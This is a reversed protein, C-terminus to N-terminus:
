TIRYFLMSFGVSILVLGSALAFFTNHKPTTLWYMLQKGAAAYILMWGMDFSLFILSLLSFQWLLPQNYDIFQPFLAGFYILGKPNSVSILAGNLFLSKQPAASTTPANCPKTYTRVQQYGLYILYAAGIWKISNFLLPTERVLLGLGLVSLLMLLINGFSAGLMTAITPRVGYLAGHHMCSLMLPGPIASVVLSVSLYLSLLSPSMFLERLYGNMNACGLM